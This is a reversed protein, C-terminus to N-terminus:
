SSSKVPLVVLRGGNKLTRQVELLTDEQFIYETPFTALVQHFSANAFPMFQAYGNVMRVIKYKKKNRSYAIRVMQPSADLGVAQLGARALLDQLHQLEELPILDLLSIRQEAELPDLNDSGSTRHM